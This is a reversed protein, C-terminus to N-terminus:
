EGLLQQVLDGAPDARVHSRQHAPKGRGADLELGDNRQV